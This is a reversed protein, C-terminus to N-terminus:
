EKGSDPAKVVDTIIKPTIFILLEENKEKVAMKKFLIGIMPLNGWFPVRVVNNSQDRQFIGGLVITESNNVLVNTDIEKTIIAPVGNYLTGSPRDQNIKLQMMIRGDPTIQPTVRLSLVAQKFAVATAGSSTAQQYPIEEGSSIYAEQQNATVVKPNAIIRAKDESELASLELDLLINSGLTAVALALSAPHNALPLAALDVNLREALSTAASGLPLANASELPANLPKPKSVGWRIGLDLTADKTVDVIRTEILVQKVPIDLKKVLERIEKMKIQIDQIWITNTRQDVSVTGRKSLLSNFKSRIFNAIDEAKAYNVQILESRLPTAEKLNEAADYAQKEWAAIEARPAILLVNGHQRKDLSRTTLIIDLAHEWPVEKLSLTINGNVADSVVINTHSIDALLALVSRVSISQFDLSIPQGSFIQKKLKQTQEEQETYSHSDAMFPSRQIKKSLHIAEVQEFQPMPAASTMPRNNVQQIYQKVEHRQKVPSFIKVALMMLLLILLGVALAIMKYTKM